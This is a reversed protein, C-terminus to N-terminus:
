ASPSNLNAEENEDYEVEKVIFLTPMIKVGYKECLSDLDRSFAEQVEPPCPVTKTSM